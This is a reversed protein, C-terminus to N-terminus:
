PRLYLQGSFGRADVSEAINKLHMTSLDPKSPRQFVDHTKSVIRMALNLKKLWMLHVKCWWLLGCEDKLLM